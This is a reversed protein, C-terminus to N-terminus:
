DMHFSEDTSRKTKLIFAPSKDSSFTEVVVGDQQISYMFVMIAVAALSFFAVLMGRVSATAEMQYGLVAEQTVIIIDSVGDNNFDAFIPKATPTHPIDASTLVEGERSIFSLLSDGMVVVGSNVNNHTGLDDVRTAIPDFASLAAVRFDTDWTPGNKLQWNFVGSGSFSTTTGTNVAIILDKATRMKHTTPDLSSLVLPTTAAVVKPMNRSPVADQLSRATNCISANFLQHRAPLGSVVMISCQKIEGEGHAFTQGHEAVDEESELVLVTDVLGDGDLDAHTRGEPMSLSTIPTGTMLSIVEVGRSTHAVLVNPHSTHESADHPLFADTSVPETRVGSFKGEGTMVSGGAKHRVAGGTNKGSKTPRKGNQGKEHGLGVRGAGAGMHRRIFHAFRMNTDENHHWAHPLEGSLSTRFTQWDNMGPARHMQTALDQVDLMYAHQPLSKTYQEPRVDMGDHKWIVTGSNGRLAYMSFHELGSRARAELDVGEEIDDGGKDLDLEEEVEFGAGLGENVNENDGSRMKMSVGVIVLGGGTSSEKGKSGSGGETGAELDLPSILVSVEHTTFTAIHAPIAHSKHAVAKEWLVNLAYDYCTVTLDERVVVVVQQRSKTKLYSDIYGTKLYVPTSGKHVNTSMLSVSRTEIPSFIEGATYGDPTEMSYVKLEMSPTIYVMEKTNQDGDLDTVIPPLLFDDRLPASGRKNLSLDLYFSPKLSFKFETSSWSIYVGLCFVCLAGFDRYRLLM